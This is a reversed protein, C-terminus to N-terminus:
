HLGLELLLKRWTAQEYDPSILPRKQECACRLKDRFSTKTECTHLLRALAASDGVDFLGPYDEGLLGVVGSTRTSVIPVDCALAESVASPGGESRSTMVLLRSSALRRLAATRPLEGLYRYRPNTKVFQHARAAYGAELEGGVQLVRIRSESPLRKIAEHILFPDKVARLHGLLCVEFHSPSPTPPRTPAKASQFVVRARGRLEVPISDIMANQLTIIRDALAMTEVATALTKADSFVDTGTLTTAVPKTPHRDRFRRVSTATKVAHLSVLLDCSQRTYETLLVTSHGLCQFISAWRLATIRNGTRSRPPAPTVIGIRPLSSGRSIDNGPTELLKWNRTELECLCIATNEPFESAL